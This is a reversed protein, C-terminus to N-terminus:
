LLRRQSDRKGAWRPRQAGDAELVFANVDDALQARLLRLLRERALADAIPFFVELRRDFNREMWDASSAWVEWGEATRFAALRAHELFRGVLSISEFRPHLATLTSRVVLRVRAGRDAAAALARLLRADTLHNVKVIVEGRDRAVAAIKALLLERAAPGSALTKPEPTRGAALADFYGAVDATLEPRATFYSLDTYLRGNHPNYNGTGLHAYVGHEAEVLFLKAHVKAGPPYDLVRVGHGEFHLRWYLNVLEDFRARGELLVEVEKGRDAAEILADLIPNERGVRYLTARLRRVGPDRAAARAFGVVQGFDDRPHYLTVDRGRLCAFPDSAFGRRRRPRLPPFRLGPVELDALEFLARLDLPPPQEFVEDDLLELSRALATRWPFGAELELRSPAGDLRTELALPLEEWDMRAAELQAIRTLRLEYMPMPEPLFLDSRARVLAGLRVFAGPRGPVPLFRRQEPQRLLYRLRRHGAAFYLAGSSLDHVQAADLLDTKPAVEEALYAGFYRAETASLQRPELLRLGAAELRPRLEGFLERAERVYAQVEGLLARYERPVRPRERSARFLRYVRASFFEDTNAAFIALYRLKELLPVDDRRATLLVRHNFRFWSRERGLKM